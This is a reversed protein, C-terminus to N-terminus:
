PTALTFERGSNLSASVSTSNGYWRSNTNSIGAGNTAPIVVEWPSAKSGTGSFMYSMDTVNSTNWGSLNLSFSTANYGVSSFMDHMSTVNSTNWGSLDLSFNPVNYYAREFMYSMDTVNSTDWGSLNLSVNSAGFGMSTFMRSMDTVNSTDWGSLNLSVSSANYGIYGLMRSMDTVNSTDWGSLNLSVSSANYGAYEFMRLMTTVSSVDWRSIDGISWTTASYGSYSFMCAMDVANSVNWGSLDGISWTTAGYGAYYFMGSMDTVNSMNWGSLDLSFDPLYHFASSFMSGTNKVNSTNWGSLDSISWSTARYGAERFMNSMNTVSSVNWSSIDGILWSTAKFGADRFMGSMNKVNSVDWGSLDGISWNTANYGANEFMSSLDTTNMMNWGTLNLSFSDANYGAKNFMKSMNRVNSTDWGSLNLSFNTASYGAQSFMSSMNTVSSANWGSLNLSFNTASYGAQSFMSSMNTVNSVDWGSIDGISWTTANRGAYGFMEYMNAVNSTDWDSVDVSFVASNYGAYNFIYRMTTVNSANWEGAEEISSLAWFQNFMYSADANLYIEEADTYYYITGNDYWAYIPAMSDASSVIYKSNNIDVSSSLSNVKKVSTITTNQTDYRATSQGSLKKFKANVNSGEDFTATARVHMEGDMSKSINPKGWAAKIVVDKGPMRFYDENIMDISDATISWGKFTYGSCSLVADSIEVTSYVVHKSNEPIMDDPVTCGNPENADYIVDYVARLKPTLPSDIDEDSTDKISSTITEHANTPFLLSDDVASLYQDKLDLDITLTATEGSRYLGSINWQIQEGVGANPFNYAIGDGYTGITASVDQAVDTADIIGDKNVDSLTWYGNNIYDTIVFDDYICPTVAAEFLVNHLSDTNAIYQKDSVRIIPELIEEGMEYQIGNVISNPYLTKVTQYQAIENLTEMNPFGDTLFLIVLDRNNQESYGDLVELTKILGQNYNTSGDVSIGNIMDIMSTKNNTFGSLIKATSNFTVLAMKNDSDSLLTNILDTADAKVQSMKAGSMSGSNDVVMVVDLKNSSYKAVSEVKFTVRAKGFDIWEASKTVRWAGPHGDLYSSNQSLIEVSPVPVDAAMANMILSIVGSIGFVLGLFIAVFLNRHSSISFQRKNKRFIGM